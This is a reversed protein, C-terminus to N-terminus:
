SSHLCSETTHSHIVFHWDLFVQLMAFKIYIYIYM